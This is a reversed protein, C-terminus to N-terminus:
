EGSGVGCEVFFGDDNKCAVDKEVAPNTFHYVLVSDAMQERITDIGHELRCLDNHAIEFTRGGLYLRGDELTKDEPSFGLPEVGEALVADGVQVEGVVVGDVLPALSEDVGPTVYKGCTHNRDTGTLVHL